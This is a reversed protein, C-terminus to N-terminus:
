VSTDKPKESVGGKIRTKTGECLQVIIIYGLLLLLSSHLSMNVVLSVLIKIM